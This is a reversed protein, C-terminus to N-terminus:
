QDPNRPKITGICNPLGCRCKLRFKPDTMISGMDISLEEGKRITRLSKYDWTTEDFFVNPSCSHNIHWLLTLHNINKPAHVGKKSQWCFMRLRSRTTADLKKFEDWPILVSEDFDHAHAIITNAPIKRLAFLGVQGPIIRSPQVGVMAAPYNEAKTPKMTLIEM